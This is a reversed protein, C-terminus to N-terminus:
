TPLKNRRRLRALGRFIFFGALAHFAVSMWGQYAVYILADLAYLALGAQFAWVKERQARQGLLLYLGIIAATVV